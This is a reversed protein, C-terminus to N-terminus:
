RVDRGPVNAESCPSLGPLCSKEIITNRFRFGILDLGLLEASREPDVM